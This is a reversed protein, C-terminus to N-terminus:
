GGAGAPTAHVSAVPQPLGAPASSQSTATGTGLKNSAFTKVISIVAGGGSYFAIRWVELQADGMLATVTIIGLAVQLFTWVSRWLLDVLETRTPAINM